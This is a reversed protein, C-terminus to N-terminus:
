TWALLTIFALLSLVFMVLTVVLGGLHLRPGMVQRRATVDPPEPLPVRRVARRSRLSDAHARQYARQRERLAAFESRIRRERERYDVRGTVRPKASWRDLLVRATPRLSPEHAFVDSEIARSIPHYRVLLSHLTEDEQTALRRRLEVPDDPPPEGTYIQFIVAGADRVDDVHRAAGNLSGEMKAHGLDAIQLTTGDWRLTDMGIRRHTVKCIRLTNLGHLLDFIMKRAVEPPPPWRERDRALDALTRGRYTTVIFPPEEDFAHGVSKSILEGGKRGLWVGVERERELLALAAAGGDPASKDVIKQVVPGNICNRGFRLRLGQLIRQDGDFDIEYPVPMGDVAGAPVLRLREVAM